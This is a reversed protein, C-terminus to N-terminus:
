LRSSRACMCTTPQRIILEVRQTTNRFCVEAYSSARSLGFMLINLIVWGMRTHLSRVDSSAAMYMQRM